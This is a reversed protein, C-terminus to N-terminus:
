DPSSRKYKLLRPSNKPKQSEGTLSQPIRFSYVQYFKRCYELNTISYGKGFESVLFDSLISLTEKAYGARQKGQQEDEVIMRGIEFYTLLMTTNVNRVVNQQAKEILIKVSQFLKKRTSVKSM